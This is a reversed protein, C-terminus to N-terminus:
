FSAKTARWSEGVGGLIFDLRLDPAVDVVLELHFNLIPPTLELDVFLNWLIALGSLCVFLCGVNERKQSDM